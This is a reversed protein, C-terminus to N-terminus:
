DRLCRVSFGTEKYYTHLNFISDIHYLYLYYANSADIETSVWFDAYGGIYLFYDNRDWYGALLGSFGSTNTGVGGGSGQGIEKLTNGDNEVTAALTQFEAYGPIHWGTPCIGQAGETTIYQMAENWQYLGGYTTCSDLVNNYCYKEIIGNNDQTSSSNIMTGVDLNEKLWCQNGILVTNYTKGDYDVTPTGPCPIIFNIMDITNLDIFLNTGDNKQVVMSQPFVAIATITYVFFFIINKM